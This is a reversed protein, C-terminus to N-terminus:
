GRGRKRRRKQKLDDCDGSPRDYVEYRLGQAEGSALRKVDVAHYETIIQSVTRNNLRAYAGELGYWGIYNRRISHLQDRMAEPLNQIVRTLRRSFQQLTSGSVLMKGHDASERYSGYESHSALLRKAVKRGKPTLRCGTYHPFAPLALKGFGEIRLESAPLHQTMRILTRYWDDVVPHLPSGRHMGDKWLGAWILAQRIVRMCNARVEERPRVGHILAAMLLLRERDGLQNKGVEDM